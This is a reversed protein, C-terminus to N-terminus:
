WDTQDLGKLLLFGIREQTQEDDFRHVAVVVKEDVVESIVLVLEVVWFHDVTAFQKELHSELVAVLANEFQEPQLLRVIGVSNWLLNVVLTQFQSAPIRM